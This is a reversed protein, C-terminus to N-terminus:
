KIDNYFLVSFWMHGICKGTCNTKGDGTMGDRCQCSFTGETNSCTAMSHCPSQQCEDVDSPTCFM